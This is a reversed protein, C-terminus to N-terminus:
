IYPAYIDTYGNVVFSGSKSASYLDPQQRSVYKSVSPYQLAYAASLFGGMSHGVMIFKDIGTEERWEEISNIFESEISLADKRNPMTM